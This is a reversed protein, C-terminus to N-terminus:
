PSYPREGEGRGSRKSKCEASQFRKLERLLVAWPALERGGHGAAERTALVEWSLPCKGDSLRQRPRKM